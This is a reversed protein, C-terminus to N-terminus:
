MIHLLLLLTDGRTVVSDDCCTDKNM